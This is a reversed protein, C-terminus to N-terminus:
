SPPGNPDVPQDIEGSLRRFFRRIGDWMAMGVWLIGALIFGIVAFIAWVFGTLTHWLTSMLRNHARFAAYGERIRRMETGTPCSVQSVACRNRIESLVSLEIARWWGRTSARLKRM